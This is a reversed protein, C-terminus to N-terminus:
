LTAMTAVGSTSRAKWYSQQWSAPPVLGLQGCARLTVSLEHAKCNALNALSARWFKDQWESPLALGLQASACIMDCLDSPTFSLIIMGSASWYANLWADPPTVGLKGCARLSMALDRASCSSLRAGSRQWFPELWALPPVSGFQACADLANALQVSNMRSLMSGSTSWVKELWATPPSLKSNAVSHLTNSMARDDFRSLAAESVKWYASLWAAPPSVGLQGCAHLTNSLEQEQFDILKAESAQWYRTLWAAPPVLGLRGSAYFISAINRADLSALKAESAKWFVNLWEVSLSAGLDRCSNLITLLSRADLASVRALMFFDLLIQFRPDSAISHGDRSHFQKLASFCFSILIPHLTKALGGRHWQSVLALVQEASSCARIEGMQSRFASNGKSPSPLVAVPVSASPRNAAVTSPQPTSDSALDFSFLPQTSLTPQSKLSERQRADPAGFSSLEVKGVALQNSSQHLSLKVNELQKDQKLRASYTRMWSGPPVVKLQGCAYAMDFLERASLNPLLKESARWYQDLWSVPPVVGLKGLAQLASALDHPSLESLKASYLDTATAISFARYRHAWASRLVCVANRTASIDGLRVLATARWCGALM